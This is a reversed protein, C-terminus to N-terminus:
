PDLVLFYYDSHGIGVKLIETEGLFLGAALGTIGIVWGFQDSRVWGVLGVESFWGWDEWDIGVGVVGGLVRRGMIPGEGAAIEFFLFGIRREDGPPPKIVAEAQHIRGAIRDLRRQPAYLVGEGSCRGRPGEGVANDTRAPENAHRHAATPGISGPPESAIAAKDSRYGGRVTLRPHM